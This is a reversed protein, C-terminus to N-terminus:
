KGGAFLKKVIPYLKQPIKGLLLERLDRDFQEPDPIQYTGEKLLVDSIKFKRRILAELNINHVNGFWITKQKLDKKTSLKQGEDDIGIGQIEGLKM